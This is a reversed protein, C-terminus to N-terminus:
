FLVFSRPLAATEASVFCGLGEAQALYRLRLKAAIVLQADHLAFTATQARDYQANVETVAISDGAKFAALLQKAQLRLQELNPRERMRRTALKQKM